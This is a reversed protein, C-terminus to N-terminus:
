LPRLITSNRQAWKKPLFVYTPKKRKKSSRIKYNRMVHLSAQRLFKAFCHYQFQKKEQRDKEGQQRSLWTLVLM